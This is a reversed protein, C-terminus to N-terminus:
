KIWASKRPGTLPNGEIRNSEFTYEIDLTRQLRANNRYAVPDFLVKLADIEGLLDM